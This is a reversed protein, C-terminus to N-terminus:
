LDLSLHLMIERKRLRSIYYVQSTPSIIRQEYTQKGLLNNLSIGAEWGQTRYYARADAFLAFSMSQDNSHQCETSGEINWEQLHGGIKLTHSFHLTSKPLNAMPLKGHLRTFNLSSNGDITLFETPSAYYTFHCRASQTKRKSAEGALLVDTTHWSYTGSLGLSAKMWGFQKRVSGNLSQITSHGKKDTQEM